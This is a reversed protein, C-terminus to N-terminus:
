FKEFDEAFPGEPYFQPPKDKKAIIAKLLMTKHFENTQAEYMEELEAISVDKLDRMENKDAM